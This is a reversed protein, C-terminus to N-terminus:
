DTIGWFWEVKIKDDVSYVGPAAWAVREAEEREAYTRVKGRLTVKNDSIAVEIKNSDLLANREFAKEISAEIDSAVAKSAISILNTVGKVGTLFIVANEAANKQYWWELKGALTVWGDQVTIDVKDDPVSTSWEIHDAASAAIEGDTREHSGALKVKIDDAVARVGSVRKTARVADWKEGYTTTFGTLTVAGDKVLVGIDTTKVSPEYKLETLVDSKIDTDTKDKSLQM